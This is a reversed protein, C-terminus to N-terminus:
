SKLPHILTLFPTFSKCVLIHPYLFMPNKKRLFWEGLFTTIKTGPDESLTHISLNTLIMIKLPYIIIYTQTVNPSRINCQFNGSYELFFWRNYCITNLKCLIDQCKSLINVTLQESRPVQIIRPGFVLKFNITSKEFTNLDEQLSCTCLIPNSLLIIM